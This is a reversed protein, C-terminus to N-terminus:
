IKKNYKIEEDREGQKNKYDYTNINYLIRDKIQNQYDDVDSPNNITDAAYWYNNLNLCNHEIFNKIYKIEKADFQNKDYEISLKDNKLNFYVPDGDSTHNSSKGKGYDIVKISPSNKHPTIQGARGERYDRVRIAIKMKAVPGKFFEETIVEDKFVVKIISDKYFIGM